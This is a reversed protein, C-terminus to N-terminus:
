TFRLVMIFPSCFTLNCPVHIVNLIFVADSETAFILVTREMKQLGQFRNINISCSQVISLLM